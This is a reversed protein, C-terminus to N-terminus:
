RPAGVDCNDGVAPITLLAGATDARGRTCCGMDGMNEGVFGEGCGCGCRCGEGVAEDGMAIPGGEGRAEGELMVLLLLLLLLLPRRLLLLLPLRRRGEAASTPM